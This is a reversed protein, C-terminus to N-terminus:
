DDSIRVVVKGQGRRDALTGAYAPPADSLPIVTDVVARVRGDELLTSLQTLQDQNPEVIFFADKIRAEDSSSSSTAISVLRGHEGLVGWSRELVEGGVCDLVVDVRDIEDEFVVTEYDLVVDAGLGTVFQVNARSATAVVRAGLHSALQVAIAGVAGSGGHILVTEGKKLQARIVLAQWATLGAVPISAAQEHPIGRPKSAISGPDALCYEATAGDIFWDNMGYVADGVKFGEVGEGLASIVGSFEHGPVAHERAEGTKTFSTPYWLLETPTVGAARVEVL